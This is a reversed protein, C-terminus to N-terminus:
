GCIANLEIDEITIGIPQLYDRIEPTIMDHDMLIGTDDIRVVGEHMLMMNGTGTIGRNIDSILNNVKNGSQEQM